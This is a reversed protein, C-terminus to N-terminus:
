NNIIIEDGTSRHYTPPSVNNNRYIHHIQTNGVSGPLQTTHMHIRELGDVEGVQIFFTVIQASNPSSLSNTGSTWGHVKKGDAYFRYAFGTTATVNDLVWETYDPANQLLWHGEPIRDYIVKNGDEQAIIQWETGDYIYSKRTTTNFYAWGAVPNSPAAALDGKWVFLTGDSGDQGNKGAAPVGTDVGDIFWNGNEGITVVSGPKGDQPEACACFILAIILAVSVVFIVKKLTKM